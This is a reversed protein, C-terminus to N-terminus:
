GGMPAVSAQGTGGFAGMNIRENVAPDGNPMTTPEAQLSSTPDGADICASTVADTTWQGTIVDWRFGQSQLHYDGEVWVGEQWQGLSVFLPDVDLNDQGSWGGQINCYNATALDDDIQVTDGQGGNFYVISNTMVAGRTVLGPGGNQTVTCNTLTPQGRLLAADGNGAVICNTLTPKCHRVRTGSEVRMEIGYGANGVIRCETFTPDSKLTVIAGPGRNDSLVCRKITPHSESVLVGASGGTITFGDLVTDPWQDEAFSVVEGDGTLVTAAVVAPDAPDTSRLTIGDGVFNIEENHVGLPVVIEEGDGADSVAHQIYDYLRGTTVNEISGDFISYGLQLRAKTVPGYEGSLWTLTAGDIAPALGSYMSGFEPVLVGYRTTMCVIQIMNVSTQANVCVVVPGEVAPQCQLGDAKVVEVVEINQSDSIDAGYIDGDDNREDTWVVFTGSIAPDYQRAPDDCVTLVKINDLDSIDAAYIDGDGEWVVLHGSIDVVDDFDVNLYDLPIPDRRGVESAITFYEPNDLDSIDAGCIDYPMDLWKQSDTLDLHCHQVWVVTDGSIAPHSFSESDSRTRLTVQEESSVKRLFVSLNDPTISNGLPAGGSWVVLDGQVKPHLSVGGGTFTQSEGLRLDYYAISRNYSSLTDTTYVVTSGSVDLYHPYTNDIPISSQQGLNATVGVTVVQVDSSQSLDFGDTVVLEFVYKYGPQSEFSPTATEPNTLVVEPGEVQSWIYQLRDVPDPDYSGTGDLTVQGPTPWARSAGADAVPARNAGVFVLVDDPASTYQDDGVILEFVYEGEAPPVFSPTASEPDYLVVDAGSTQTWHYTTVGCPDYFFSDRGDLTVTDTVGLVHVDYGAFAVPRVYGVYEDAGIDIRGGYVRDEGDIDVQDAPPVFDPDGANICASDLTLHYNRNATSEFYPNQSINGNQGTLDADGGWIQGGTDYDYGGYNDPFNDWVDNYAFYASDTDGESFVGGGSSAGVLINNFVRLPPLGAQGVLYVHAGMGSQGIIDSFGDCDNRYFTNNYIDGSFVILGGGLYASNDFFINNHITPSGFYAILGAGVYCENNRIVNHTITPSCEYGGIAGGFCYDVSSGDGSIEFLGTNRVIVNKTITPSSRDLYVGAGFYLRESGDSLEPFYTGVGGTITFGTLVANSTEGNAFTVVSGENQGNLITYGVVAANDPDTGTVTINKGVFDIRQFYVGPSVIVTDGDDSADIADQILAYESPVLRVTGHAAGAVMCVILMGLLTKRGM